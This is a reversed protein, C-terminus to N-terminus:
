SQSQELNKLFNTLSSKVKDSLGDQDIWTHLYGLFDMNLYEASKRFPVEFGETIEDDSGCSIAAMKKGALQRGLSKEVQLCDTIRDFFNKMIGSMSYWYVPTVFFMGEYTVIQEITSIFDDDRHEHDYSYPHIVKTKLDIIDASLYKKINQAITYSNGNSRSSGLLIIYKM